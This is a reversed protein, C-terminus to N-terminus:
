PERATFQIEIGFEDAVTLTNAFSPPEIGFESLLLTSATAVGTLTDGALNATVDFTVPQTVDHVTLDGILKFSVESGEVYTAPAGEIATAKFTATPYDNFRPGNERIWTDRM